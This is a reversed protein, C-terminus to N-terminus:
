DLGEYLSPNDDLFTLDDRTPVDTVACGSDLIGCHGGDLCIDCTCTCDQVELNFEKESM